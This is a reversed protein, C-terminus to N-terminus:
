MYAPVQLGGLAALQLAMSGVAPVPTCRQVRKTCRCATSGEVALQKSSGVGRQLTEQLATVVLLARVGSEFVSSKVVLASYTVQAPPKSAAHPRGKRPDARHPLSGGGGNSSWRLVVM